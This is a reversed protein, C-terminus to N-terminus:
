HSMTQKLYHNRNPKSKNIDYYTTIIIIIILVILLYKM